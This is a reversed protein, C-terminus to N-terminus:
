LKSSLNLPELYSDEIYLDDTTLTDSNNEVSQMSIEDYNHDSDFVDTDSNEISVTTPSYIGVNRLCKDRLHKDTKYVKKKACKIVYILIIIFLAM